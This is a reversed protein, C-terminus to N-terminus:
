SLEDGKPRETKPASSTSLQVSKKKVEGIRDSLSQKHDKPKRFDKDWGKASQMVFASLENTTFGVKINSLTFVVGTGYESMESTLKPFPKDEGCFHKAFDELVSFDSLGTVSKEGITFEHKGGFIEITKDTLAQEDFEGSNVFKYALEDMEDVAMQSRIIKPMDKTLAEKFEADLLANYRDATDSFDGYLEDYQAQLMDMDRVAQKMENLASQKKEPSNSSAIYKQTAIKLDLEAAELSKKMNQLENIKAILEEKTQRMIEEHTTTLARYLPEDDRCITITAKDGIIRGSYGMAGTAELTEAVRIAEEASMKIYMKDHIDKYPTNGIVGKESVTIKSKPLEQEQDPRVPESSSVDAQINEAREKEAFFHPMETFGFDDVYHAATGVTIVDSVSLSHGTFDEPINLNFKDYIQNLKEEVSNGSIENWKGTYVLDYDSVSLNKDKNTELSEFRVGHYEEGRKLQYIKFEVNDRDAKLGNVFERFTDADKKSLTFTTFSDSVKGSYKIDNSTLFEEAKATFVSPVKIYQKDKIFRYPVNGIIESNKHPKDNEHRETQEQTNEKDIGLYKESIKTILESATDCITELSSQLESLEKNSSWGAIYGFSYDSTDIGFHQCVTYAVSEAEVEKTNRDKKEDKHDTNHLMAHAIEHITTKVTQAQSMGEKITISNSIPDYYGHSESKIEEFKIPVPSVERLVDFLKDYDEVEGRLDTVLQPLEKGETQSIDFVSVPKYAPITVQVKETKPQGNADLIPLGTEKDLMEEEKTVKYPAFALIRIGKEGKNVNRGFNDRWSNFGAVYTADPKQMLILVCNRFSYNHFKSLTNLYEKYKESSFLMEKIGTQLRSTIAKVEESRDSYQKQDAM